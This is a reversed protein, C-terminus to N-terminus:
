GSERNVVCRQTMLALDLPVQKQPRSFIPASSVWYLSPYKHDGSGLLARPFLSDLPHITSVL